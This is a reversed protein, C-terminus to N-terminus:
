TVLGNLRERLRSVAYHMRSKVTGVPIGLREAIEAYKLGEIRSLKVVERLGPPLEEIAKRLEAATWSQLAAEETSATRPLGAFVHPANADLSEASSRRSRADLWNFLHNRAITFLYPATRGMPAYRHRATWLKLLVEQAMEQALGSDRLRREFYLVLSGRYRGVLEDFAAVDGGAAALM